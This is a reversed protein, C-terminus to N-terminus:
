RAFPRRPRSPPSRDRRSRPPAHARREQRESRLILRAHVRQQAVRPHGRRDLRTGAGSVVAASRAASATRMSARAGRAAPPSLRTSLVRTSRARRRAAPNEMRSSGNVYEANTPPPARRDRADHRERDQERRQSGTPAAGPCPTGATPTLRHTSPGCGARSARSPTSDNGACRLVLTFRTAV